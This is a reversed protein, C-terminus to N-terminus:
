DKIEEVCKYIICRDFGDELYMGHGHVAFGNKKYFDVSDVASFLFFHLDPYKDLCKKLLMKGIGKRQYDPKIMFNWITGFISKDCLVRTFGILKNEDWASVVYQSNRFAKEIAKKYANRKQPHRLFNVEYFIDIVKEYDLDKTDKLEIKM